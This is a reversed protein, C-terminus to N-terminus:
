HTLELVDLGLSLFLSLDQELFGFSIFLLIFLSFVLECKVSM